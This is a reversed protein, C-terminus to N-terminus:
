IIHIGRVSGWGSIPPDVERPFTPTDGGGKRGESIVGPLGVQVSCTGWVPQKRLVSSPTSQGRKDRIGGASRAPHLSLPTKWHKSPPDPHGGAVPRCGLSRSGEQMVILVRPAGPSQRSDRLPAGFPLPQLLPCAPPTPPPNLFLQLLSKEDSIDTMKQSAQSLPTPCLGGVSRPPGDPGLWETSRPVTGPLGAANPTPSHSHTSSLLPVTARWGSSEAEPAPLASLLTSPTFRVLSCPRGPSLAGTPM